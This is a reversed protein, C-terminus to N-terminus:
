VRCRRLLKSDVEKGVYRLHRQIVKGDVRVSEVEALYVANGRKIKWLIEPM